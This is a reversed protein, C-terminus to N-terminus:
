RKYLGQRKLNEIVAKGEPRNGNYVQASGEFSGALNVDGTYESDVSLTGSTYTITGTGGTIDELTEESLNYNTTLEGESLYSGSTAGFPFEGGTWTAGESETWLYLLVAGDDFDEATPDIENGSYLYVDYNVFGGASGFDVIFANVIGNDAFVDPSASPLVLVGNIAHVIGNSGVFADGSVIQAEGGAEGDSDIAGSELITLPSMAASTYVGDLDAQAVADSTIVHNAILGYWEEATFSELTINAGAFVANVPAFVTLTAEPDSLLSALTPLSQETAYTDAKGIAAELTSFNEDDLLVAAYVLTPPTLVGALAHVVGNESEIDAVAVQGEATTPIGDSDLAVGTLIGAAENTEADLTLVTIPGGAASVFRQGVELDSSLVVGSTIVHNSILGYWQEATYDDLSINAQQFVANVPAFVTLTANDDSIIDILPTVGDTQAAYTDAKAIAAALTSFDAGLLLTQSVKNLNEGITTCITEPILIRDVVHVVGNTAALQEGVFQVNRNSCGNFINGEDNFTIEEGQVTELTTSPTIDDRDVVGTTHVHFSLVDAIVEPNVQDLSEVALTTRLTEFAADNPAFLTVGDGQLEAVLDANATVFAELQTHDDSAAVINLISETPDPAPDDGDDGDTDDCATFTFSVATLILLAYFVKNFKEFLNTKKM